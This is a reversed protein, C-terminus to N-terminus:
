YTIYKDIDINELLREGIDNLIPDDIENCPDDSPTTSIDVIRDGNYLCGISQYEIGKYVFEVSLHFTGVYAEQHTIKIGFEKELTNNRQEDTQIM